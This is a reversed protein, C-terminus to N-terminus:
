LAALFVGPRDVLVTYRRRIADHLPRRPDDAGDYVDAVFRAGHGQYFEILALPNAPNITGSWESAARQAPAAGAELRCGRRDAAYLLAEPAIVLADAPVLRDIVRAAEPLAVWEPPTRYTSASLVAALVVFGLAAAVALSRGWLGRRALDVLGKAMGLAALPALALWYYEHHLKGALVLLALAASLGWVRWLRDPATAVFGRAALLGGMPTFARVTLSRALNIWMGMNFLASPVLVRWWIAANEASARSGAGGALVSWAHIYWLLSPVLTAVALAIKWPRRSQVIVLILPILVYASVIKLALALALLSWAAVLWGLPGGHEREDWCHLGALLAGLMLADPQFARGYRITVPFLTFAAVAILAVTGGERRQALGFLGWAGLVMGLASVLRGSPELPLGSVRQLGVALLAFVPPEVLFLNPFPGTDLMPRLFGSGRDLNRAAMATPIQRGVYNEVIPQDAKWARLAFTALLLLALTLRERPARM